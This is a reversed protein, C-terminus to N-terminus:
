KSSNGAFEEWSNLGPLGALRPDVSYLSKNEDIKV